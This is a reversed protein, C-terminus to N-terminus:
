LAPFDPKQAKQLLFGAIETALAFLDSSDLKAVDPATLIPDSIRPLLKSAENVDMQALALLSLGRLESAHPKRLTVKDVVQDGRRLPEDLPVTVFVPKNQEPIPQDNM